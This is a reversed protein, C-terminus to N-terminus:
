TYQKVLVAKANKVHTRAKKGAMLEDRNCIAAFIEKHEKLSEEMREPYTLTTQRFLTLKKSVVTYMEHLSHSNSCDVIAKHFALNASFYDKSLSEQSFKQMSDVFGALVKIDEDSANICAQEAALGDLVGRLDYLEFAEEVGILRVYTGKGVRNEVVGYQALQRCAERIPARSIQLLNSLHSENIREGSKLDGNLIMAELQEAVFNSLSQNKISNLKESVQEKFMPLYCKKNVTSLICNIKM